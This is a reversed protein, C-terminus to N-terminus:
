DFLGPQISEGTEEYKKELTRIMEQNEDDEPSLLRSALFIVLESQDNSFDRSKFLEGIIPLRGILPM